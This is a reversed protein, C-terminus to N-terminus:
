MSRPRSGAMKVQPVGLQGARGRGRAPPPPPPPRAYRSSPSSGGSLCTAESSRRTSWELVLAPRPAAATRVRRGGIAASLSSATEVAAAAKHSTLCLLCRQAQALTWPVSQLPFGRVGPLKSDSAGSITGFGLPLSSSEGRTMLLKFAIDSAFRLAAEDERCPFTLFGGSIWTPVPHAPHSPIPHSPYGPWPPMQSPSGPSSHPDM